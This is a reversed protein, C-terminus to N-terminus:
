EIVKIVDKTQYRVKKISIYKDDEARYGVPCLVVSKLGLSDLGLIEDVKSPVFGEMPCSDIKMTACATLLTGLAIYIQNKAWNVKKDEDKEVVKTIMSKFASLDEPTQNRVRCIDTIYDDIIKENLEAPRCLIILHSADKVQAQGFAAPVLQERLSPNKVLLFKWPQIGYSSATLRLVELLDDVEEESLKKSPDFKKCAYRWKLDDVLKHEQKHEM